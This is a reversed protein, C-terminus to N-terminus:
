KEDWEIKELVDRAAADTFAQDEGELAFGFQQRDCADIQEQDVPLIIGANEQLMKQAQYVARVVLDLAALATAKERKLQDLEALQALRSLLERVDPRVGALLKAVEKEWSM